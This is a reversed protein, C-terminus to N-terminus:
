LLSTSTTLNTPFMREIGSIDFRECLAQEEVIAKAREYITKGHCIGKVPVKGRFHVKQVGVDAEAHKLGRWYLSWVVGYHPQGEREKEYVSLLFDETM